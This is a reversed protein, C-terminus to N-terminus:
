SVAQVDQLKESGRIILRTQLLIERRRRKTDPSAMRETLLDYAIEGMEKMPRDMVTIEYGLTGLLSIDDFGVLGIDRGMQLSHENLYRICGLTASSCTVLVATPPDPLGLLNECAQYGSKEDFDGPYIYEDEMEMGYDKLCQVYGDLRTKGKKVVEPCTVIGIKRHGSEILLKVGEYM